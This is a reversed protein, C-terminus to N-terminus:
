RGCLRALCLLDYPPLISAGRGPDYLIRPTVWPEGLTTSGWPPSICGEPFDHLREPVDQLPAKGGAM